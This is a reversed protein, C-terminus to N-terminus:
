SMFLCDAGEILTKGEAVADGAVNTSTTEKVKIEESPINAETTPRSETSATEKKDSCSTFAIFLMMAPLLIKKM